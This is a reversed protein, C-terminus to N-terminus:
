MINYLEGHEVNSSVVDTTIPVSQVAEHHFFSFIVNNTFIPFIAVLNWIIKRFYHEQLHQSKSMLKLTASRTFIRGFNSCQFM